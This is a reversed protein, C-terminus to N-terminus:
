AGRGFGELGQGEHFAAPDLSEAQCRAFQRQGAGRVFARVFVHAHGFGDLLFRADLFAVQLAADVQGAVARGVLGQDRVALSGGGVAVVARSFVAGHQGAGFHLSKREVGVQLGVVRNLAVNQSTEGFHASDGSVADREAHVTAGRGVEGDREDVGREAEGTEGVRTSKRGRAGRGAALDGRGHRGM